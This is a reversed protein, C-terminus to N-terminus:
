RCTLCFFVSACFLLGVYLAGKRTGISSALGSGSVLGSPRTQPVVVEHGTDSRVAQWCFACVHMILVCCSIYIFRITEIIAWSICDAPTGSGSGEAVGVWAVWERASTAPQLIKGPFRMDFWIFAIAAGRIPSSPTACATGNRIPVLDTGIYGM